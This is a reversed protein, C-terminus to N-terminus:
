GRSWQNRPKKNPIFISIILVAVYLRVAHTKFAHMDLPYFHM